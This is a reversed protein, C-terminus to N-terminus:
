ILGDITSAMPAELITDFLKMSEHSYPCVVPIEVLTTLITYSRLINRILFENITMNKRYAHYSIKSRIRLM